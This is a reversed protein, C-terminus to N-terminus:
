NNVDAADTPAPNWVRVSDLRGNYIGLSGDWTRAEIEGAGLQLRVEMRSETSGSFVEVKEISPQSDFVLRFKLTRRYKLGPLNGAHSNESAALPAFTYACTTDQCHASTAAKLWEGQWPDDVPDEITPMHPPPYPWNRFWYQFVAPQPQSGARFRVRVESIDREEAWQLAYVYRGDAAKEAEVGARRAEQYDFEVQSTHRDEVCCWRAFPALDFLAEASLGAPALFALALSWLHSVKM